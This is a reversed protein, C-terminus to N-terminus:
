KEGLLRAKQAQYEQDSIAGADKAKQLDILQQGLTPAETQQGVVPHHDTNTTATNTANTTATRTGGGFDLVLCGTLLWAAPLGVLVPLFIRKM